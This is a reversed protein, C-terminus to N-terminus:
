GQRIYPKSEWLFVGWPPCGEKGMPRYIGKRSLHSYCFLAVPWYLLAQLKKKLIYIYQSYQSSIQFEFFNTQNDKCELKQYLEYLLIVHKTFHRLSM